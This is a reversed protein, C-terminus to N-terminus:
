NALHSNQVFSVLMNAQKLINKVLTIKVLDAAILNLAYAICHINLIHSYNEYVTRQAVRVNSGNDTVIAAFHHPGIKEIIESIKNAIFDGTQHEGSYDAIAYLYEHHSPTTIIYNYLSDGKYLTLNDEKQLEAELKVVIQAIERDLITGLLADKHPPAYNPFAKLLAKTIEASQQPTLKSISQFHSAISQNSTKAKKIILIEEDKDNAKKGRKAVEVLWKRRIDDPVPRAGFHGHGDEEGENYNDWIPMRPRGGKSKTIKRKAPIKIVELPQSSPSKNASITTEKIELFEPRM